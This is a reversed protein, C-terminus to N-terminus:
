QKEWDKNSKLAKQTTTGTGFNHEYVVFDGVISTIEIERQTERNVYKDGKQATM